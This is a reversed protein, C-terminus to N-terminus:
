EYFAMFMGIVALGLDFIWLGWFQLFLETQTLHPHSFQIYLGLAVSILIFILGIIIKTNKWFRKLIDKM